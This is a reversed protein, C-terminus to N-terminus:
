KEAGTQQQQDKIKEVLIMIDALVREGLVKVDNPDQALDL